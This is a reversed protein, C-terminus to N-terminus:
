RKRRDLLAARVAADGLQQPTAHFATQMAERAEPTQMRALKEDLQTQLTMIKLRPQRAPVRVGIDQDLTLHGATLRRLLIGVVSM